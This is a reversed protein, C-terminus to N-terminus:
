VQWNIPKKGQALLLENTRSFHKCGFFGRHASLPSPHPGSLISHRTSDIGKGKKQAHAGWLIFVVGDCNANIHAIVNDTFQEWGLHKHSHAQGQEVTLVTNLLFVGQEAWTQLYGHEPIVFGEIDTALEKYMNKLSPPLKKVEPLVSFCLGHAQGEGHYPDQGLIVVRIDNLPTVNFANFVLSEPPYVAVGQARRNEVANLTKQMYPQQLENHIFTDWDSM